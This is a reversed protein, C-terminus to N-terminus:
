LKSKLENTLDVGTTVAILKVLAPGDAPPSARMAALTMSISSNGTKKLWDQVVRASRIRYADVPADREVLRASPEAAPDGELAVDVGGQECRRPRHELRVDLVHEVPAERSGRVDGVETM